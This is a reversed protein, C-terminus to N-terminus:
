TLLVRLRGVMAAALGDSPQMDFDVGEIEDEYFDDGFDTVPVGDFAPATLASVTAPKPKRRTETATAGGGGSGGYEGSRDAGGYEGSGSGYGGGNDGSDGGSASTEHARNTALMRAMGSPMSGAEEVSNKAKAADDGLGAVEVSAEEEDLMGEWGAPIRAHAGGAFRTATGPVILYYEPNDKVLYTNLGKLIGDARAISLDPTLSFEEEEFVRIDPLIRRVFAKIALQNIRVLYVVLLLVLTVVSAAANSRHLRDNLDFQAGLETPALVDDLTAVSYKYTPVSAYSLMWGALLVKMVSAWPMISVFIKAMAEDYAPPKKSHRLLTVKAENYVGLCFVAALPVLLPMGPSFMLATFLMSTMQAYRESLRFEFGEHMKNLGRQTLAYRAFARRHLSGALNYALATLPYVLANVATTICVLSAVSQYWGVSFDTYPGTFLFPIWDLADVNAYVLLPIAASNITLALFLKVSVSAELASKTHHREFTSFTRTMAALLINTFATFGATAVEVSKSLFYDQCLNWWGDDDASVGLAVDMSDIFRAKCMCDFCAMAACEDEVTTADFGGTWANTGADFLAPPRLYPAFATANGRWSGAAVYASCVEADVQSVFAGLEQLIAKSNAGSTAAAPWMADCTLTGAAEVPKCSISPPVKNASSKAIVVAAGTCVLVVLMGFWALASRVGASSGVVSLNEWLIDNGEPARRVWLRHTGRMQLRKPRTLWAYLSHPKYARLAKDKSAETEFTVFASTVTNGTSGMKQDLFAEMKEIRRVQATIARKLVGSKGGSKVFAADLVERKRLWGVRRRHQVIIGSVDTGLVVMHIRGFRAFFAGIEEPTIGAKPVGDVKLSYDTLTINSVDIAQITEQQHVALWQVALIFALALTCEICAVAMMVGEDSGGWVSAETFWLLRFKHERAWSVAGLTPVALWTLAGAELQAKLCGARIYVVTTFFGLLTMCGLVRAGWLLSEFYLGIGVGLEGLEEPGTKDFVYPQSFDAQDDEKSVPMEEPVCRVHVGRITVGARALDAAQSPPVDEIIAGSAGDKSLRQLVIGLKECERYIDALVEDGSLGILAADDLRVTIGARQRYVNTAKAHKLAVAYSPPTFVPTKGPDGSHTVADIDGTAKEGGGEGGDVGRELDRGDNTANTAPPANGWATGPGGTDNAPPTVFRRHADSDQGDPGVARPLTGLPSSADVTSIASTPRSTTSV